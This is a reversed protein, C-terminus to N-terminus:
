ATYSEDLVYFQRVLLTREPDAYGPFGYGYVEGYDVSQDIYLTNSAVAIADNFRHSILLTGALQNSKMHNFDPEGVFFDIPIRPDTASANLTKEMPLYTQTGLDEDQYLGILTVETRESPRWTISPMAVSKDNAQGESM